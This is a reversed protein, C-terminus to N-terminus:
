KNLFRKLYVRFVRVIYKITQYVVLICYQFRTIGNEDKLTKHARIGGEYMKKLNSTLGSEGFDEKFSYALVEDIKISKEKSLIIQTWLLFDEAFRKNKEFRYKDNNKIMVSRTPFRNKIFQDRAKINIIKGTEKVSQGIILSKHGSLFANTEKMIKYQKEVKNKKWIDDSDLFAIYKSNALNMGTNRAEGPGKNEKQFIVNIIKNKNEIKKLVKRDIERNSFDDIIIIENVKVTQELISDVAREITNESKFYPIVVSVDVKGM